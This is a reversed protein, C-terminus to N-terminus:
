LDQDPHTSYTRLHRYTYDITWHEAHFAPPQIAQVFDVLLLARFAHQDIVFRIRAVSLIKDRRVFVGKAVLDLRLRETAGIQVLDPIHEELCLDDGDILDLEEGVTHSQHSFQELLSLLQEDSAKVSIKLLLWEGSRAQWLQDGQGESHLLEIRDTVETGLTGLVVFSRHGPTCVGTGLSLDNARTLLVTRNAM